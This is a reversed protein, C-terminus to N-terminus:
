NSVAKIQDAYQFYALATAELFSSITGATMPGTAVTYRTGVYQRFKVGGADSPVTMAVRYGAVLTAKPIAATIYHSTVNVTLAADDASIVEIQMTAAGAATFATGVQATMIFDHGSALNRNPLGTDISDTSVATATVAQLTSPRNFKDIM